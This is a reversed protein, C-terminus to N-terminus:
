RHKNRAESNRFLKKWTLYNVISGVIRPIILRFTRRVLYKAALFKKNKRKRYEDLTSNFFGTISGQTALPSAIIFHKIGLIEDLKKLFHDAPANIKNNRIWDTRKAASQRDIIYAEATTIPGELIANFDQLFSSMDRKNDGGGIFILFEQLHSKTIEEIIANLRNKFNRYLIIDDEVILAYKVEAPEELLLTQGKLHKLVASISTPNSLTNPEINELDSKSIMDADFEEIFKYDLNYNRFQQKLFEHRQHHHRATVVYIVLPCTETDKLKM